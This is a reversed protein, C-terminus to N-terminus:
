PILKISCDAKDPIWIKSAEKHIGDRGKAKEM